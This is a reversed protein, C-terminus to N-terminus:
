TQDRDIKQLTQEKIYEEMARRITPDSWDIGYIEPPFLHYFLGPQESDTYWRMHYLDHNEPGLSYEINYLNKAPMHQVERRRGDLYLYQSRICLKKHSHRNELQVKRVLGDSQILAARAALYAIGKKLMAKDLYTFRMGYMDPVSEFLKAQPERFRRAFASMYDKQRAQVIAHIRDGFLVKMTLVDVTRLIRKLHTGRRQKDVSDLVVGACRWDNRPDLYIAIKESRVVGDPSLWRVFDAIRTKGETKPAAHKWGNVQTTLFFYDGTFELARMAEFTGRDIQADEQKLTLLRKLLEVPDNPVEEEGLPCLRERLENPMLRETLAVLDRRYHEMELTYTTAIRELDSRDKPQLIAGIIDAFRNRPNAFREDEANDDIIFVSNGLAMWKASALAFHNRKSRLKRLSVDGRFLSEARSSM